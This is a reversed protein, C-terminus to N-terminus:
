ANLMADDPNLLKARQLYERFFAQLIAFFIARKWSQKKKIESM